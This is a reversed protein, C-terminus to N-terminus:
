ERTWNKCYLDGPKITAQNVTVTSLDNLLLTASRYDVSTIAKVPVWATCHPDPTTMVSHLIFAGVLGLIPFILDFKNLRPRFQNM